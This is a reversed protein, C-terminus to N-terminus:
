RNTKAFRPPVDKCVERDGYKLLLALQEEKSESYVTVWVIDQAQKLGDTRKAFHTNSEKFITFEKVFEKRGGKRWEKLNFVFVFRSVEEM